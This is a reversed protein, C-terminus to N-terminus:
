ELNIEPLPVIFINYNIVDIHTRGHLTVKQVNVRRVKNKMYCVTQLGKLDEVPFVFTLLLKFKFLAPPIVPKLRSPM